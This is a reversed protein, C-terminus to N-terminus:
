EMGHLLMENVGIKTCQYLIAECAEKRDDADIISSFHLLSNVPSSTKRTSLHM